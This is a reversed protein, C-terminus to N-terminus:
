IRKVFFIYPHCIVLLIAILLRKLCKLCEKSYFNESFALFFPSILRLPPRPLYTSSRWSCSKWSAWKAAQQASRSWERNFFSLHIGGCTELEDTNLGKGSEPWFSYFPMFNNLPFVVSKSCLHSSIVADTDSGAFLSIHMSVQTHPLSLSLSLTHIPTHQHTPPPFPPTPQSHNRKDCAPLQQLTKSLCLPQGHM